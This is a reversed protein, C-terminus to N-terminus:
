YPNHINNWTTSTTTVVHEIGNVLIMCTNFKLTLKEENKKTSEKVEKDSLSPMLQRLTQEFIDKTNKKANEWRPMIRQMLENPIQQVLQDLSYKWKGLKSMMM